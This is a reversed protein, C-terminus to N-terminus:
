EENMMRREVEAAAFGERARAVFGTFNAVAFSIGHLNRQPPVDPIPRPYGSAFFLPRGDRFEARYQDRPCDWDLTVPLVHPLCGPFAPRGSIEIPAIVLTQQRRARDLVTEFAARHAPNLTGLSLNILQMEHDLAWEIARLIQEATTRLSRDFVKVAYLEAAPAKERIAGAVATGHGAVDVFEPAEGAPLISVGGAVGGVHPHAAHVGSDIMAVRVGRGTYQAFRLPKREENMM